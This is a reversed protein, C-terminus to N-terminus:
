PFHGHITTKGMSFQSKRYSHWIVTGAVTDQCVEGVEGESNTHCWRGFPDVHGHRWGRLGPHGSGPGEDKCSGEWIGGQMPHIFQQSRRCESHPEKQPQQGGIMSPPEQVDQRLCFRDFDPIPAQAVWGSFTMPHWQGLIHNLIFLEQFMNFSGGLSHPSDLLM